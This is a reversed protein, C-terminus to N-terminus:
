KRGFAVFCCIFKNESWVFCFVHGCHKKTCRCVGLFTHWSFAALLSKAFCEMMGGGWHHIKMHVSVTCWSFVVHWWSVLFMRILKSSYLQKPLTFCSLYVNPNSNWLLTLKASCLPCPSVWQRTASMPASSLPRVERLNKGTMKRSPFLAFSRKSPHKWPPWKRAKKSKCIQYTGKSMYVYKKFLDTHCAGVMWEGLPFFFSTDTNTRSVHLDSFTIDTCHCHSLM